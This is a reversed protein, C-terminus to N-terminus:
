KNSGYHSLGYYLLVTGAVLALGAIAFIVALTIAIFLWISSARRPARRYPTVYNRDSTDMGALM